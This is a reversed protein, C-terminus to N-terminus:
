TNGQSALRWDGYHMEYRGYFKFYFRGGETSAPDFWSSLLHPEERMAILIPKTQEHSAILYWATADLDPSVIYELKGMYPNIERNVTDYADRNLVIQAAERELAPPVVLLDFINQIYEGQDDRFLDAAVKVTEFNDLDLALANENSQATQYAAGGDVHDNDFFDSGDYCAGYNASDGGNLVQFVRKNIHKLFNDGASRVKRELSGTQDDEIANRSIWVTIDWEEVTLTKSKEIMDQVTMGSKSNKPMPAAGLDVLDLARAGLNVPMAVRLYPYQRARMGQLFGTRAGVVLHKPVNGSIM